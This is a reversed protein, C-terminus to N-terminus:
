LLSQPSYNCQCIVTVCITPCALCLSIFPCSVVMVVDVDEIADADKDWSIIRALAKM